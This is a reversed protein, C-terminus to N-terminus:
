INSLCYNLYMVHINAWDIRSPNEEDILKDNLM